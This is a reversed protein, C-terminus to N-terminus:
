VEHNHSLVIYPKRQPDHIIERINPNRREHEMAERTPWIRTVTSCPVENMNGLIGQVQLLVEDDMENHLLFQILERNKM